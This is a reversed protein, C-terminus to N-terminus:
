LAHIVEALPQKSVESQLCAHYRQSISDWDFGNRVTALAQNSLTHRQESDSLLTAIAEALAASDATTVLWGTEGHRIVDRVAPLDSAIVPCGCGMAEVMVLGLGEMDGDKAQVFPFVALTSERYLRVLAHHELRGAFNVCHAIGLHQALNELETQLPGSGAIILRIDPVHQSVTQLAQLLYAIGKKEVLRGVFLLQHPLRAVNANPTFTHQLDTGMPIVTVPPTNSQSLERVKAVMAHSVVTLADCHRIVWRKLLISMSGQLGFLDGGHSTCLLTPKKRVGLRVFAAVLGQPILWHAHITAVPHIKLLRRLAWWQGIFFFPLLLIRWRNQKLNASIGGEYALTELRLPAYRYRHIRLGDREEYRAAGETHPALVVVDFTHALRMCLDYVFRPESDGEWRPFTSATVLLTPKISM